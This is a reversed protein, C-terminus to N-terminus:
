GISQCVTFNHFYGLATDGPKLIHGLHTKAIYQTDNTGFDSERAVTAEALVIKGHTTGIPNIDLVIYPILQKSVCISRFGYKWYLAATLECVQLTLPDILHILSSIKYCILLPSINGISKALKSPLCVLDEKCLPSIEVSFTYNFNQTNSHDDHSILKESTKFRVPVVQQLFDVFKLCHSRHSFYFDIGDPMEKVNICNSHAGHKLILQELFYFTKKHNAKQRVQAVATWTHQTDARTCQPCQFPQVVFEVVFVQQLITSTFVEKQVTLKIKIRRSHPETWVFSADVLRLKSLGRVRKILLVLLDRSEPEVSAWYNPPSLYRGCVKCWQVSLNKPIGETIDVENRVCNVCMNSTNSNILTGCVCCLITPLTQTTDMSDMEKNTIGFLSL